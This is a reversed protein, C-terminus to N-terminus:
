GKAGLADIKDELEDIRKLLMNAVLAVSSVLMYEKVHRDSDWDNDKWMENMKYVSSFGAKLCIECFAQKISKGSRSVVEVECQTEAKCCTCKTMETTM